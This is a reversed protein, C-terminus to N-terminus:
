LRSFIVGVFHGPLRKQLALQLLPAVTPINKTEFGAALLSDIQWEILRPPPQGVKGAM